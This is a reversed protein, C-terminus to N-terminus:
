SSETAQGRVLRFSEKGCHPRRPKNAAIYDIDLRYGQRYKENLAEVAHETTGDPESRTSTNVVNIQMASCCQKQFYLYGPVEAAHARCWRCNWSEFTNPDFFYGFAKLLRRTSTVKALARVLPSAPLFLRRALPNACMTSAVVRRVLATPYATACLEFPYQTTKTRALSWNIRFLHRGAITVEEVNDGGKAVFERGLRLSFGFADDPHDALAGEILDFDVSDFVVVDDIGFLLHKTHIGNLIKILDSHFEAERVVVCDPFLRFVANYEESFLEEKYLIYTEFLRSPFYRHLSGLYAHLQLPRNRTFVINSIKKDM